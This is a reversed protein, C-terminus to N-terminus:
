REARGHIPTRRTAKVLGDPSWYLTDGAEVREGAIESAIGSLCQADLYHDGPLNSQEWTPLPLSVPESEAEATKGWLWALPALLVGSVFGRRNIGM